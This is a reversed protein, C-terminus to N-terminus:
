KSCVLAFALAGAGLVLYPHSRTGPEGLELCQELLRLGIAEFLYNRTNWRSDFSMDGRVFSRLGPLRTPLAFLRLEPLVQFLYTASWVRAALPGQHLQILDGTVLSRRSGQMPAGNLAATFGRRAQAPALLGEAQTGRDVTLGVLLSGDLSQDQLVAVERDVDPLDVVVFGVYLTNPTSAARPMAAAVTVVPESPLRGHIALLMLLDTLSAALNLQSLRQPALRLLTGGGVLVFVVSPEAAPTAAVATTTSTTDDTVPPLPGNLRQLLRHDRRVAVWQTMTLDHPSQEWVQGVEDQLFAGDVALLEHLTGALEPAVQLFNAFLASSSTEPGVLMTVVGGGIDRADFPLMVHGMDASQVTVTLQPTPLGPLPLSLFRVSRIASHSVAAAEQLFQEVTWDARAQRIVGTGESGFVLFDHGPASLSHDQYLHLQAAPLGRVRAQSLHEPFVQFPMVVEANCAVDGASFLRAGLLSPPLAVEAQDVAMGTTTSTTSTSPAQVLPAAESGYPIRRAQWPGPRVAFEAWEPGDATDAWADIERGDQDLLFLHGAAHAAAWEGTADLGKNHLVEWVSVAPSPFLVEVTHVLGGIARLDLPVSRCGAPARALTLTLQPAAFGHMPRTILYVLRVREQVERIADTIFDILRWERPASRQRHDLRPEFVTYFRRSSQAPPPTAVCAYDMPPSFQQGAM